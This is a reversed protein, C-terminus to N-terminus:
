DYRLQYKDEQTTRTSEMDGMVGEVRKLETSSEGCGNGSGVGSSSMSCGSSGSGERSGSSGGNGGMIGDSEDDGGSRVDSSSGRSGEM